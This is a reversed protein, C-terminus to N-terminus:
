RHVKSIVYILRKVNLVTQLREVGTAGYEMCEKALTHVAPYIRHIQYAVNSLVVPQRVIRKRRRVANAALMAIQYTLLTYARM